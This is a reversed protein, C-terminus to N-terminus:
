WRRLIFALLFTAAGALKLRDAVARHNSNFGYWLVALFMVVVFVLVTMELSQVVSLTPGIYVNL